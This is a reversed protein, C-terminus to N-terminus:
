FRKRSCCNKLKFAIEKQMVLLWRAWSVYSGKEIKKKIIKETDGRLPQRDRQLNGVIYFIRERVLVNCYHYIKWNNNWQTWPKVYGNMSTMCRFGTTPWTWPWLLLLVMKRKSCINRFVFFQLMFASIICVWWHM